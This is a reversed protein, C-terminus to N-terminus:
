TLKTVATLVGAASIDLRVTLAAGGTITLVQGDRVMLSGGSPPVAQVPKVNYPALAPVTGAVLDCPEGNALAYQGNRVLVAYQQDALPALKGIEVLEPATPVPGATFYMITQKTAM